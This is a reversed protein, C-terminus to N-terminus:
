TWPRPHLEDPNTHPKPLPTLALVEQGSCLELAGVLTTSRRNEDALTALLEGGLPGVRLVAGPLKPRRRVGLLQGGVVVRTLDAHASVVRAVDADDLNDIAVIEPPPSSHEALSRTVRALEMQQSTILVRLRGESVAAQQAILSAAQTPPSEYIGDLGDIVVRAPGAALRLAQSLDLCYKLNQLM